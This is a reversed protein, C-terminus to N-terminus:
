LNCYKLVPPPILGHYSLEFHGSSSWSKFNRFVRLPAIVLTISCFFFFFGFSDVRVDNPLLAKKNKGYFSGLIVRFLGGVYYKQVGKKPNTGFNNWLLLCRFSDRWWSSPLWKHKDMFHVCILLEMVESRFNKFMRWQTLVLTIVCSKVSLVIGVDSSALCKENKWLNVGFHGSSSM